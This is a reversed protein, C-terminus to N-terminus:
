STNKVNFFFFFRKRKIGKIGQREKFCLSTTQDFAGNEKWNKMKGGNSEPVIHFGSPPDNGLSKM